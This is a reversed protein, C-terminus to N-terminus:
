RCAPEPLAATIASLSGPYIYTDDIEVTECYRSDTLTIVIGSNPDLKVRMVTGSTPGDHEDWYEVSVPDPVTKELDCSGGHLKLAHSLESREINRVADIIPQINVTKM